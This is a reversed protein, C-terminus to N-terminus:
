KRSRNEIVAKKKAVFRSRGWTPTLDPFAVQPGLRSKQGAVKITELVGGGADERAEGNDGPKTKWVRGCGPLM